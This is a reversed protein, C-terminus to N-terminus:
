QFAMKNSQHKYPIFAGSYYGTNRSCECWLLVGYYEGNTGQRTATRVSQATGMVAEVVKTLKLGIDTKAEM